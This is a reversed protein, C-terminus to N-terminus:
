ALSDDTGPGLPTSVMRLVRLGLAIAPIGLWITAGAGLFFAGVRTERLDTFWIEPGVVACAPLSSECAVAILVVGPRRERWRLVAQGVAALVVVIAWIGVCLSM